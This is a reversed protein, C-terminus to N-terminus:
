LKAGPQHLELLRDLKEQVQRWMSRGEAQLEVILKQQRSLRTQVAAFGYELADLREGQENLSDEIEARLVDFDLTLKDLRDDGM